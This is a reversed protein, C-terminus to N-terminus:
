VGTTKRHMCSGSFKRAVICNANLSEPCTGNRREPRECLQLQPALVRHFQDLRHDVCYRAAHPALPQAFSPRRLVLRRFRLLLFFFPDDPGSITAQSYDSEGSLQYIQGDLLCWLSFDKHLFLTVSQDTLSISNYQTTRVQSLM